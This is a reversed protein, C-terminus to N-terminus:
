NLEVGAHYRSSTDVFFDLKILLTPSFREMKINPVSDGFKITNPEARGTRSM